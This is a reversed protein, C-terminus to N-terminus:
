ARDGLLWRIVDVYDFALSVLLVAVAAVIWKGAWTEAVQWNARRSILYVVLPTWAVVHGLGLIRSYGFLSYLFMVGGAGIVLGLLTWRAEVRVFSFPLSLALVGVLINLWVQIWQPQAAVDANFATFVELM